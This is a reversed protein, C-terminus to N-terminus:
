LIRFIGQLWVKPWEISKDLVLGHCRRLLAQQQHRACPAFCPHCHDRFRQRRLVPQVCGIYALMERGQAIGTASEGDLTCHWHRPKKKLSTWFM